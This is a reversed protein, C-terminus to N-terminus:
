AHIYISRSGLCGGKPRATVFLTCPATAQTRAKAPAARPSAPGRDELPSIQFGGGAKELVGRWPGSCSLPHVKPHVKRAFVAREDGM